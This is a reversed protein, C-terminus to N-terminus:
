GPSLARSWTCPSLPETTMSLSSSLKMWTVVALRGLRLLLRVPRVRCRDVLDGVVRCAEPAVRLGGPLSGPWSDTVRVAALVLVEEGRQGALLLEPDVQLGVALRDRDDGADVLGGARAAGDGQSSWPEPRSM